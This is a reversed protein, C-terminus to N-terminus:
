FLRGLFNGIAGGPPPPPPPAPPAPPRAPAPPAARPAAPVTSWVRFSPLPRLYSRGAGAQIFAWTVATHEGPPLDPPVVVLDTLPYCGEPLPRTITRSDVMPVYGVTFTTMLQITGDVSSCLRREVTMTGGAVVPVVGPHSAPRDTAGPSVALFAVDYLPDATQVAWRWTLMGIVAWSALFALYIRWHRAM